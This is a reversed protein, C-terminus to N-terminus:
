VSYEVPHYRGSEIELYGDRNVLCTGNAAFEYGVHELPLIRKDIIEGTYPNIFVGYDASSRKSRQLLFLRSGGVTSGVAPSFLDCEPEGSFSTRYDAPGLTTHWLLKGTRSICLVEGLANATMAIWDPGFAFRFPPYLSPYDCRHLADGECSTRWEIECPGRTRKQRIVIFLASRSDTGCEVVHNLRHTVSGSVADIQVLLNSNLRALIFPGGTAYVNYVDSLGDVQWLLKGTACDYANLRRANYERAVILAPSQQRAVQELPSIASAMIPGARHGDITVLRAIGDRNAILVEPEHPDGWV